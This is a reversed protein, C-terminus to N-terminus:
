CTIAHPGHLRYQMDRRLRDALLIRCHGHVPFHESVAAWCTCSLPTYFFPDGECLVAVDRGAELHAGIEVATRSKLMGTRCFTRGVHAHPDCIGGGLM